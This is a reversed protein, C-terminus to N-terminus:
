TRKVTCRSIITYLFVLKICLKNKTYKTLRYMNRAYRPGDDPPVVTHICSNTSIIRKLHSNDQVVSLIILVLQICITTGGSSPGFLGLVHVDQRFTSLILQADLQNKNVRNYRSARDEFCLVYHQILLFLKISEKVKPVYLYTWTLFRYVPDM